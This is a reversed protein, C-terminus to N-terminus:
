KKRSIFITSCYCIGLFTFLKTGIFSAISYIKQLFQGTTNPAYGFSEGYFEHKNFGNIIRGALNRLFLIGNKEITISVLEFDCSELLTKLGLRSFWWKHHPPYDSKDHLSRELTPGAIIMRGNPALFTELKKLYAKPDELHELVDICVIDNFPKQSELRDLSTYLRDSLGFKERGIMIARQNSDIGYVDSGKKRLDYLFFGNFCGIELVKRGSWNLKSLETHAWRYEHGYLYDLQGYKKDDGAYNYDQSIQGLAAVFHNSNCFECHLSDFNESFKERRMPKSCICNNQYSM